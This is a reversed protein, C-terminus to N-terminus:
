EQEPSSLDNLTPELRGNAALRNGLHFLCDESHEQLSRWEPVPGPLCRPGPPSNGERLPSGLAPMVSQTEFYESGRVWSNWKQSFVGLFYCPQPFANRAFIDSEAADTSASGGSRGDFAAPALRPVAARCRSRFKGFNLFTLHLPLSVIRSLAQTTVSALNM